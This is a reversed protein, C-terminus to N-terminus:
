KQNQDEEIEQNLNEDYEIESEHKPAFFEKAFIFFAATILIFPVFYARNLPILVTTFIGGFIVLTLVADYYRRLLFYKIALPIGIAILIGPWFQDIISLIAIGILLLAAFLSHAKRKSLIPQSM